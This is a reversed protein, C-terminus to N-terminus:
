NYFSIGSVNLQAGRFWHFEGTEKNFTFVERSHKRWVLEKAGVGGWFLRPNDLSLKYISEYRFKSQFLEHYDAYCWAGCFILICVKFITKEVVLELIGLQLLDPRKKNKMVKLMHKSVAAPVLWKICVSGHNGNVLRFALQKLNFQGALLSGMDCADEITFSATNGIVRAIVSRYGPFVQDEDCRGGWVTLFQMLVTREKFLQVDRKYRSFKSNFDEQDIEFVDLVEELIFYSLFNWAGIRSLHLFLQETTAQSLIDIMLNSFLPIEGHEDACRQNLYVRLQDVPM